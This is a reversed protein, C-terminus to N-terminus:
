SNCHGWIWIAPFGDPDWIGTRGCPIRQAAISKTQNVGWNIEPPATQYCLTSRSRGVATVFKTGHCDLVCLLTANSDAFNQSNWKPVLNCGYECSRPLRKAMLFFCLVVCTLRQSMTIEIRLCQFITTKWIIKEFALKEKFIFLTSFIYSFLKMLLKIEM